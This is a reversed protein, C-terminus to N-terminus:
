PFMIVSMSNASSCHHPTAAYIRSLSFTSYRVPLAIGVIPRISIIIKREMGSM